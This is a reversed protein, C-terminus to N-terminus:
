APLPAHQADARVLQESYEILDTVEPLLDAPTLRQVLASRSAPWEHELISYVCTDVRSGDHGRRYGRLVGDLTAGLKVIAAASRVNRADCRLTVRHVCLEEFAFAMLALKSAANVNRGWYKRGFFTMGLEIRSQEPVYDYLSTTGAVTGTEEDIVAFAIVAPDAVRAAFLQELARRSTPREAAMGAWMEADIYPYLDAAHRRRLPVLRVGHGPLSINHQVSFIYAGKQADSFWEGSANYRQLTFSLNLAGSVGKELWGSVGSFGRTEATM